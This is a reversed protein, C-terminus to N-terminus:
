LFLNPITHVPTMQKQSYPLSSEPEKSSPSNREQSASRRKAEWSSSQEM